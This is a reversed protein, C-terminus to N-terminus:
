DRGNRLGRNKIRRALVDCIDSRLYGILRAELERIERALRHYRVHTQPRPPIAAFPRPDLGARRRL